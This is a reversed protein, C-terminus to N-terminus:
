GTEGYINATISEVSPAPAGDAPALPTGGITTSLLYTIDSLSPTPLGQRLVSLMLGDCIMATTVVQEVAKPPDISAGVTMFLDLMALMHAKNAEQLEPEHAVALFLEFRAYTISRRPETLWGVVVEAVTQTVFEESHPAGTTLKAAAAELEVRDIEFLRDLALALLDVRKRCYYSTSGKPLGAREDIALHTMGRMGSEAIVALASDAILTRRPDM